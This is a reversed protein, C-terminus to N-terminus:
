KKDFFLIYAPSADMQGAGHFTPNVVSTLVDITM